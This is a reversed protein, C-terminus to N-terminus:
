RSTDTRIVVDRKIGGSHLEEAILLIGLSGLAIWVWLPM